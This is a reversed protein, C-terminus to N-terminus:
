PRPHVQCSCVLLWATTASHAVPASPRDGTLRAGGSVSQHAARGLCQCGSGWRSRSGASFFIHRQETAGRMAPSKRLTPGCGRRVSPVANEYGAACRSHFQPGADDGGACAFREAPPPWADGADSTLWLGAGDIAHVRGDGKAHSRPRTAHEEDYPHAGGLILSTFRDPAYKALLFGVWGGLSYGFYHTHRIGLDDLVAVVDSARLAPDYAAADHPKDSAGAGRADILILKYDHKLADVYGLDRWDAGSGSSGHHLLLPPGAGEIEYHIRIGGNYADPM